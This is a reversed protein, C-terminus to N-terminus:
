PAKKEEMRKAGSFRKQWYDLQMDEVKVAGGRSPSHIFRNNGIYIGVHSFTKRMTNFFVLDGPQLEKKAVKMGVRSMELASRPLGLQVAQNFVYRVFGSCDFGTDPNNGGYKYRIGTLSLASLLVEQARSSWNSPLPEDQSLPAENDNLQTEAQFHLNAEPSTLPVETSPLPEDALCLSSFVFCCCAVFRVFYKFVEMLTNNM